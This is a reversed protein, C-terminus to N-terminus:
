LQRRARLIMDAVKLGSHIMGGFIPGMRPGGKVATAAMGSVYLGPYIEGSAEVVFKEAREADMPFEQSIEVISRRSLKEVGDAPHGTSDLVFDAYITMPDITIKDRIVNNWNIVVGCVRNNVLLIDEVGINNFIKVGQCTANFILASAFHVADVILINDKKEFIVGLETCTDSVDESLIISNFKMGGGWLGGGPQNRIEFVTVKMNNKALIYSAVLGSPGAGIIVVDNEVRNELEKFFSGIIGKTISVDLM